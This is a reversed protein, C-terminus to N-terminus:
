NVVECNKAIFCNLISRFMSIGLMYHSALTRCFISVSYFTFTIFVCVLFPEMYDGFAYMKMSTPTLIDNSVDTVAEGREEDDVHVVCHM